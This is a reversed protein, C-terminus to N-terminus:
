KIYEKKYLAVCQMIFEQRKDYDRQIDIAKDSSLLRNHLFEIFKRQDEVSKFEELKGRRQNASIEVSWLTPLFIFTM